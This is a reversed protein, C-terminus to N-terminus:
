ALAERALPTACDNDEAPSAAAPLAAQAAAWAVRVADWVAGGRHLRLVAAGQAAALAAAGATGGDRQSPTRGPIVAEMFSKRSPGLLLPFGLARLAGCGGLLELSQRATKAFGIGPDVLIREGAIGGVLARDARAALEDAVEGLLHVYSAGAYMAGPEGRMHMLVLACGRQAVVEAMGPDGLGSVDNVMRAGAQLCAAAVAASRTDVSVPVAGKALMAVAPLLRDLQEEDAVAGAGPRTSEAGLDLWGAGEDCRKAAAALVAALDPLKGGDSFSDPTLNLVAMMVPEPWREQHAARAALLRAAIWHARAVPEDPDAAARRLGPAENGSELRYATAGDPLERVPVAGFEALQRTCAGTRPTPGRWLGPGVPLAQHSM